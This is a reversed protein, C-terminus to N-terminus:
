SRGGFSGGGECSPGEGARQLGHLVSLDLQNPWWDKNTRPRTQKPTPAPIGPNESESVSATPDNRDSM